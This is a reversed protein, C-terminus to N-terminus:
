VLEKFEFCKLESKKNCNYVKVGIDLIKDKNSEFMRVYSKLKNKYLELDKNYYYGSHWHTNSNDIYFDYGLLYINKVGLSIALMLAGYGSNNGGYIGYKIDKSVINKLIKRVIYIDNYKQISASCLMVKISKNIYWLEKLNNNHKEDYIGTIVSDYFLKDMFYLINPEFVEFCRNIGITFKDKLINFDFGKLSCGGGIIYCDKNKLYNTDLIDCIKNNISYTQLLRFM